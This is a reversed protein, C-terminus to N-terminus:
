TRVTESHGEGSVGRKVKIYYSHVLIRVIIILFSELELDTVLIAPQTVVMTVVM